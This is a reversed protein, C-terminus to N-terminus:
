FPDDSTRLGMGLRINKLNLLDALYKPESFKLAKFALLCIKFEIPPNPFCPWWIAIAYNKKKKKLSHSCLVPM